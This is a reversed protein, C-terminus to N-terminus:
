ACVMVSRISAMDSCMAMIGAEISMGFFSPIGIFFSSCFFYDRVADKMLPTSGLPIEMCPYPIFPQFMPQIHIGPTTNIM